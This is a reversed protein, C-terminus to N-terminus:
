DRPSPSTYLLCTNDVIQKTVSLLAPRLALTRVGYPYGLDLLLLAFKTTESEGLLSEEWGDTDVAKLHKAIVRPVEDMKSPKIENLTRLFSEPLAMCVEATFNEEFHASYGAFKEVLKKSLAQGLLM